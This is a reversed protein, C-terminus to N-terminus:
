LCCVVYAPANNLVWTKGPMHTLTQLILAEAERYICPIYVALNFRRKLQELRELGSLQLQSLEWLFWCQIGMGWKSDLAFAAPGAPCWLHLSQKASHKKHRPHLLLNTLFHHQHAPKLKLCQMERLEWVFALYKICNQKQENAHHLAHARQTHQLCIQLSNVSRRVWSLVGRPFVLGLGMKSGPMWPQKVWKLRIVCPKPLAAM